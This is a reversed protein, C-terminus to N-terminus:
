GRSSEDSQNPPATTVSALNRRVWERENEDTVHEAAALGYQVHAALGQADGQCSCARAIAEHAFARDFESLDNEECEMLYSRAHIRAADGRGLVAYVRSIQWSGRALNVPAGVISWHWRSAHAMDIMATDDAQTRQTSELLDRTRHFLEVACFRHMDEPIIADNITTM